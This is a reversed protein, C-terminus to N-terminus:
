EPEEIAIAIDDITHKTLIISGDRLYIGTDSRTSYSCIRFIESILILSEDETTGDESSTTVRVFNGHRYPNNDDM